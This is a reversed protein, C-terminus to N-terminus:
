EGGGISVSFNTMTSPQFIDGKYFVWHSHYWSGMCDGTSVAKRIQYGDQLLGRWFLTLGAAKELFERHQDVSIYGFKLAGHGVKLVEEKIALIEANASPAGVNDMSFQGCYEMTGEVAQWPSKNGFDWLFFHMDGAIDKFGNFYSATSEWDQGQASSSFCLGLVFVLKVIRM